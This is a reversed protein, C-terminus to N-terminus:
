QQAEQESEMRVSPRNQDYVSQFDLLDAFRGANQYLDQYMRYGDLNRYNCRKYESAAQVPSTSIDMACFYVFGEEKLYAYTEDEPDYPTRDGIDTGFPYMLIDVDGVLSGVHEKWLRIDEKVADLGSIYSVHDYGNCAFEWGEAKLAAIVPKVAEVEAATDFIGYQSAYRNNESSALSPDTRYGLIGNYGTLGLIGRAGKHSFDPHQEVFTNVCSVVDFDGTLVSGDLRIRENTIKGNADLVIRSAFGQRSLSFDYSM